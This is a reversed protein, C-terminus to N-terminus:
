TLAAVTVIASTHGAASQVIVNADWRQMLGDVIWLQQRVLGRDLWARVAFRSACLPAAKHASTVLEANQAENLEGPTAVKM